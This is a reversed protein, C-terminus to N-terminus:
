KKSTKVNDDTTNIPSKSFGGIRKLSQKPHMKQFRPYSRM